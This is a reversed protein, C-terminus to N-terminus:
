SKNQIKKVFEQLMEAFIPMVSDLVKASIIGFIFGAVFMLDYGTIHAGNMEFIRKLKYFYGCNELHLAKISLMKQLGVIFSKQFLQM